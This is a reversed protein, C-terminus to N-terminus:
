KAKKIEQIFDVLENIMKAFKDKKLEHEWIRKINWEKAKYYKTAEKDRGGNRELKKIWYELNSKPFHGHVECGHWFCSDIFIVIKYKKISIDPKGFLTKDNKKYRVGKNWLAKTVNDELKSRSKISKMMRSRTEESVTDVM